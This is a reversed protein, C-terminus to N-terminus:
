RKVRMVAYLQSSREKSLALTGAKQVEVEDSVSLYTPEDILVQGSLAISQLRYSLDVPEGIATVRNYSDTGINGVLVKGSSIGISLGAVLGEDEDRKTQRLFRSIVEISASVARKSDGEDMLPIGFIAVVEKGTFRDITGGYEHITMAILSLYKNLLSVVKIPTIDIPVRIEKLGVSLVSVRQRVGGSELDPLKVKIKDYMLRSLYEGYISKFDGSKIGGSNNSLELSLSAQGAILRLTELDDEVFFTDDRKEYLFIAGLVKNNYIIPTAILTRIKCKEAAIKEKLTSSGKQLDSILLPEGKERVYGMVLEELEIVNTETVEGKLWHYSKRIPNRLNDFIYLIGEEAKLFRLAVQLYLGSLLDMDLLAITGQKLKEIGLEEIIRKRFERDKDELMQYAKSLEEASLTIQEDLKKKIKALQVQVELREQEKRNIEEQAIKLQDNLNNILSGMDSREKDWALEREKNSTEIFKNERYIENNVVVMRAVQGVYFILRKTEITTWRKKESYFAILGKPKESTSFSAFHIAKLEKGLFLDKFRVLELKKTVSYTGGEISFRKGIEELLPIEKDSISSTFLQNM